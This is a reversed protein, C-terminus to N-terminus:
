CPPRLYKYCLHPPPSFDQTVTFPPGLQLRWPQIRLTCACHFTGSIVSSSVPSTAPIGPKPFSRQGPNIWLHVHSRSHAALIKPVAQSIRDNLKVLSGCEWTDFVYFHPELPEADRVTIQVMPWHSILPVHTLMLM